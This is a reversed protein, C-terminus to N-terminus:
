LINKRRAIEKKILEMLEIQYVLKARNRRDNWLDVAWFVISGTCLFVMAIFSFNFIIGFGGIYSQLANITSKEKAISSIYNNIGSFFVGCISIISVIMTSLLSLINNSLTRNINKDDSFKNKNYLIQLKKYMDNLIVDPLVALEDNIQKEWEHYDYYSKKAYIKNFDEFYKDCDM